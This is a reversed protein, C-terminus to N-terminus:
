ATNVTKEYTFSELAAKRLSAANLRPSRVSPNESRSALHTISFTEPRRRQDVTSDPRWRLVDREELIEVPVLGGWKPAQGGAASSRLKWSEKGNTVSM